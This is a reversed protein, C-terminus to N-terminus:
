DKFSSHFYKLHFVIHGVFIILYFTFSMNAQMQAFVRKWLHEIDIKRSKKTGQNPVNCKNKNKHIKIKKKSQKGQNSYKLDIYPPSSMTFLEITELHAEEGPLIISIYIYIDFSCLTLSFNNHKINLSYLTWRKPFIFIQKWIRLGFLTNRIELKQLM